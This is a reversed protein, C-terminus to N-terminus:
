RIVVPGLHLYVQRPVRLRVYRAKVNIPASWTLFVEKRRAQETWHKADNSTELILPVAREFCCDSRNHVKVLSLQHEEGLDYMVWPNKQLRTHFVASGCDGPNVCQKLSSSTTMTATLALDPPVVLRWIGAVLVVVGMLFLAAMKTLRLAKHREAARAPAELQHILGRTLRSLADLEAADIAGAGRPDRELARQATELLKPDSVVRGLLKEDLGELWTAGATSAGPEDLAQGVWFMSETLLLLAARSRDESPDLDGDPGVDFAIEAFMKATKLHNPHRLLDSEVDSVDKSKSAEASSEESDSDESGDAEPEKSEPTASPDGASKEAEPSASTEPAKSEDVRPAVPSAQQAKETEEAGSETASKVPSDSM